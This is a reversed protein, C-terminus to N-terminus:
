SSSVFVEPRWDSKEACLIGEQDESFTLQVEWHLSKLLNDVESITAFEDRVVLKGGPRVIRDVEAMVPVIECREKIRSFLHDAHLLDYTRPYTSFSECWDHYIGFLGREYIIPLTDPADINVLNMVWVNIDKLAAAFGGYVARMDMVNRVRSWNIGFGSLYSKTVVRKWHEYDSTFDNPAPKGYVGVQSTNLWYPPVRLRRPWEEPWKSGQESEDIPVQHMCTKLPIYWAANPDDDENCMPPNQHKRNTYCENSSPKRYIAAAIGNLRDKKITVLDWCMSITLSTMSKWIEVDERLKQYVPTESWVFVGGPRLLRNIELLLIGGDAHWPVRCRACHILDFVRSPFPLRQSGMVASIAPIGRELAFQVQAEHEDKPAFSMALVDREFLYGGFSAVGCGVDLIVRTHRGWAISRFSQRIFDIYHLAGHIFQTGGGPFTLYEGTVKVWNQHGKVKALKTRPVNNYWIRDRSKPWEISRRYGEPLPVLCTVSEDPCHRERHEHHKKHLKEIAKLNDLCPIYDPGTTANCLKWDFSYSNGFDEGRSAGGIFQMEEVKRREKEDESQDEQTAWQRKEGDSETLVELQPGDLVSDGVDSSEEELQQAPQQLDDGVSETDMQRGTQQQSEDEAEDKKDEFERQRKADGEKKEEFERKDESDLEEKKEEFAQQIENDMEQKKEEEFDQKGERDIEERKDEFAQQIEKDMEEKKEEFEQKGESDVEEIKEESAQRIENDGEEKKEEFEQKGENDGEEKKEEFEHQIENDGEEKEKFRGDDGEKNEEEFEQKSEDDGERKEEFEQKNVDVAEEIKEDNGVERTGDDGSEMQKQSEKQIEEVGGDLNSGDEARREEDRNREEVEDRSEKGVGMVEPGEKDRNGDDDDDEQAGVREILSKVMSPTSPTPFFSARSHHATAQSPSISSSMLMWAAVLFIAIFVVTYVYYSSSSSSSSSSSPFSRKGIRPNRAPM